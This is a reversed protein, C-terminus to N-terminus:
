CDQALIRDPVQSGDVAASLSLTYKGSATIKGLVAGRALNQGTILTIKESIISDTDGAILADLALTDQSQSAAPNFPNM